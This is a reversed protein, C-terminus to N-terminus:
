VVNAANDMWTCWIKPSTKIAPQKLAESLYSCGNCKARRAEAAITHANQADWGPQQAPSHADTCNGTLSHFKPIPSLLASTLLQQSHFHECKKKNTKQRKLVQISDVGEKMPQVYEWVEPLMLQPLTSHFHRQTGSSSNPHTNHLHAPSERGASLPPLVHASDKAPSHWQLATARLPLSHTRSVPLAPSVAVPRCLVTYSTGRDARPQLHRQISWVHLHDWFVSFPLGVFCLFHTPPIKTGETRNSHSVGVHLLSKLM